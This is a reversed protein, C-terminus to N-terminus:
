VTAGSSRGPVYTGRPAASAKACVLDDLYHTTRPNTADLERDSAHERLGDQMPLEIMERTLRARWGHWGMEVEEPDYPREVYKEVAHLVSLFLYHRM